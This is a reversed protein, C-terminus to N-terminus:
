ARNGDDDDRPHFSVAVTTDPVEGMKACTSAVCALHTNSAISAQINRAGEAKPSGPIQRVLCRKSITLTVGIYHRRVGLRIKTTDKLPPATM